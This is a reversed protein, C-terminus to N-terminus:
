RGLAPIVPMRWWRRAILVDKIEASPPLSLRGVQDIYPTGSHATNCLSKTEGGFLVLTFYFSHGLTSKGKLCPPQLRQAASEGM